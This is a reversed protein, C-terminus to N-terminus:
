NYKHKKYLKRKFKNLLKIMFDGNIIGFLIFALFINIINLYLQNFYVTIFFYVLIIFYIFSKKEIQLNTKKHIDFFRFLFLLFYSILTSITAAYIGIFGILSIHVILNIIAAIGTTIGNRKSEMRANYIGGIFQSLSSFVLSIILIPVQYYGMFYSKSFLYNYFLFNFSLVLFCVSTLVKITSNFVNSFYINKDEDNMSEIASEQWSLHFINFFTQCLNPIKNAVAYIANFSTGLYLSVITRDSVTVIWWSIANPLLPISYKLMKKTLEMDIYKISCDISKHVSIICILSSVFYGISYALVIGLLDLKLIKIFLVSFLAICISFFINSIAYIPLKKLGRIIYVFYNNIGEFVLLLLFMPIITRLKKIFIFLVLVLFLSLIFGIIAVALSSSIIKNISNNSKKGETKEALFRFTGEGICLTMFPILLTVYTTLLDFTGYSSQIMWRTLLPTMIFMLGKTCLTGFGLIATNKVLRNTKNNEM